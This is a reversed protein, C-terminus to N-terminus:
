GTVPRLTRAVVIPEGTAGNPIGEGSLFVKREIWKYPTKPSSRRLRDYARVVENNATAFGTVGPCAANTLYAGCEICGDGAYAHLVATGEVRNGNTLSWCKDASMQVTSPGCGLMFATCLLPLISVRM